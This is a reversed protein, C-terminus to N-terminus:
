SVLLFWHTTFYAIWTPIVWLFNKYGKDFYERGIGATVDFSVFFYTSILLSMPILISQSIQINDILAVTAYFLYIFISMSAIFTLSLITRFRDDITKFNFTKLYNKIM